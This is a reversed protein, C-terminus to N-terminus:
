EARGGEPFGAPAVALRKIMGDGLAYTKVRTDDRLAVHIIRREQANLYETVAESQSTIAQEALQMALERLEDERRKWFDNIELQLHYRSGEGLNVMRNLLHQLAQRVEGKPGNLLEDDSTVEAVVDVRDGAATASVSADFGMAKLLDETWRKGQAALAESSLAPGSDERRSERRVPPAFERRDHPVTEYPAQEARAPVPEADHEIMPRPEPRREIRPEMRPEARPEMRPEDRPEMRPEVRADMMAPAPRSDYEPSTAPMSVSPSNMEDETAIPAGENMRGAGGRGRGGRRGRRRRRGRGDEGGSASVTELPEASPPAPAQPRAAVRPPQAARRDDPRRDDPRREEPRPGRREDGRGRGDPRRGESRREETSREASRREEPRGRREDRGGAVVPAPTSGRDGRGRPGREARGGRGGRGSREGGGQRSSRERGDREDPERMAGGPRPMIRVKYPRAGLGLFGGSGEEIVTIMAEARSIGLAELGKRVAEELTKGTFLTAPPM